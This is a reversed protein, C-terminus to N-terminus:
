IFASFHIQVSVVAVENVDTRAGLSSARLLHMVTTYHARVHLMHDRSSCVQQLEKGECNCKPALDSVDILSGVNITVVHGAHSVSHFNLTHM